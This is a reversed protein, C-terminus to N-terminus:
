LKANLFNELNQPTGMDYFPTPSQYCSITGVPLKQLYNNEFSFDKLEKTTQLFFSRKILYVGCNINGCIEVNTRVFSQVIGFNDVNVVGVDKSKTQYAMMSIPCKMQRHYHLFDDLSFDIYTDGNLLLIEETEENQELAAKLAGGTGMPTVESIYNVVLEQPIHPPLMKKFTQSHIGSLISVNKIGNESLRRLLLVIFPISNIPFLCKPLEADISKFRTGLGGALIYARINCNSNKM